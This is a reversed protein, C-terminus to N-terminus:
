SKLRKKRLEQRYEEDNLTRMMFTEGAAEIVKPINDGILKNYVPM